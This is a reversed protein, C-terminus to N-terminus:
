DAFYSQLGKPEAPANTPAMTGRKRWAKLFERWNAARDDIAKRYLARQEPNLSNRFAAEMKRSQHFLPKVRSNAGQGVFPRMREMIERNEQGQVKLDALARIAAPQNRDALAADLAKYKSVPFTAAQNREYDAKIKPDTSSKLWDGYLRNIEQNPYYRSIKLGVAGALQQWWDIAGPRAAGSVERVGPLSRLTIPIPQALLEKTTEGASVKRGAYDVGTLYQLAGKGIIPSLRSHIFTRTNQILGAIDEPVSRMTYKRSGVHFEFPHKVDWEGGTMQATIYSAAMQAIALTALALVQERGAKTGVIGKAGQGAFRARAELFDPALMGLQMAHQVTPNRGLDAYNLHGYAANSQEASLIKIDEPQMRGAALDDAYVHNNRRLIAEYTKFKLGPIYQHFLYNSYMDSLKGLGPIKSVLGSTRFGEMFQGESVRDPALMLGHRTADAQAQNNVLDIKPINGFPNIRHGVAHTGEQVQHFPALLGLMTRKTESNFLDIGHVLKKPIAALRGGPTTYWERIASRGLVNKLQNYAEPHLALDGKLFVPNGQPDKTAWRWGQLAPQNPLVKYDLTDGKIAKPNILTAPNAEGPVVVGTGRPAVLPRGDSGVGDSMQKVLERAAIVSNMEHGYIPLLRSIDKTKPTYGAQEGDFFTPFTSAKAYRFREKLTRSTGTGSPGRRLNWMHTVYNEKFNNIVDATQGRQGFQAYRQRVENAVALEEPTLQLAAKYGARLKPDRTAAARQRLVAADGDAEIWNTIADRKVKNPVRTEIDKQTMAAESFSRQLKGSWNLVSRRYDNMRATGLAEQGTERVVDWAAKAAPAAKSLLAQIPALSIAGSEGGRLAGPERSVAAIGKPAEPAKPLEPATEGKAKLYQADPMPPRYTEGKYNAVSELSTWKPTGDLKVGTAYEYAEWPQKQAEAGAAMLKEMAKDPDTESKAEEMMKAVRAQGEEGAKRLAAVDEATKARAGIRHMLGTPGGSAAFDEPTADKILGAAETVPKDIFRDPSPPQELAAEEEAILRGTETATAEDKLREYEAEPINHKKTAEEFAIRAEIRADDADARDSPEQRMARRWRKEAKAWNTTAQQVELPVERRGAEAAAGGGGADGAPVREPPIGGRGEEAPLPEDVRPQEPLRRIPAAAEREQIASPEGTTSQKALERMSAPLTVKPALAHRGAMTTFAGLQAIDATAAAIRRADGSDLAAGLEQSAAPVHRLMDAAFGASAVRGVAAPAAALGLTALMPPSTMAEAGALVSGQVGSVTQALAGPENNRMLVAESEESTLEPSASALAQMASEVTEPSVALKSLPVLPAMVDGQIRQPPFRLRRFEPPYDLPPPQTAGEEIAWQYSPPPAVDPELPMVKPPIAAERAQREALLARLAAQRRAGERARQAVLEDLALRKQEDDLLSEAPPAIPTPAPLDRFYDGLGFQEEPSVQEEEFYDLLPM